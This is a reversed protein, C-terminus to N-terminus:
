CDSPRDLRPVTSSFDRPRPRRPCALAPRFPRPSRPRRIRGRVFRLLMKSAAPQGDADLLGNIVLQQGLRATDEGIAKIGRLGGSAPDIDVSVIDNRLTHGKVTLSGAPAPSADHNTERPVWAYGFPPLDVVAVVGDETFQSARLPGDPRLDPACEPLIVSARCWWAPRTSCSIVPVDARRRAPLERPSPRRGCRSARTLRRPPKMLDAPKWPLKWRRSRWWRKPILVPAWRRPSRTRPVCPMAVLACIRIVPSEPFRIGIKEAIAQALYPTVYTDVTPSFSEFPRDTLHFYDNLTVWRALCM